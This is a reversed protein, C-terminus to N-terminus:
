NKSRGGTILMDLMMKRLQSAVKKVFLDVLKGLM